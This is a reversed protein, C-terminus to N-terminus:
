PTAPSPTEQWQQITGIGNNAVDKRPSLAGDGGDFEIRLAADANLAFLRAGPLTLALRLLRLDAVVLGRNLSVGFPKAQIGEGGCDECPDGGATGGGEVMAVIGEGDCDKCDEEHGCELCTVEGSGDCNRCKKVIGAGQCTECPASDEKFSEWGPPVEVPQYGDAAPICDAPNPPSGAREPLDALEGAAPVRILIRGNTAFIHGGRPFPAALSHRWPDVSCFPQLDELKM